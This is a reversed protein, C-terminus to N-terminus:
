KACALFGHNNLGGGTLVVHFNGQVKEEGTAPDTITFPGQFTGLGTALNVLAPDARFKLNGSLRPDTSTTVGAWRGRLELYPGDEGVCTRQQVEGPM